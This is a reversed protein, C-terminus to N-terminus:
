KWAPQTGEIVAKAQEFMNIAASHNNQQKHIKAQLIMSDATPKVQNIKLVREMAKDYAQAKFYASASANLMWLENGVTGAVHDYVQGAGLYDGEEEKSRGLNLLDDFRFPLENQLPKRITFGAKKLSELLSVRGFHARASSLEATRFVASFDTDDGDIRMALNPESNSLLAYLSDEVWSTMLKIGPSFVATYEGQCHELAADLKESYSTQPPVAVIQLNPMKVTVDELQNAPVPLILKFVHCTYLWIKRLFEDTSKDYKEPVLLLSLDPMKPWPKAPRSTRIM